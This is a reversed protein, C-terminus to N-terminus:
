SIACGACGEPGNMGITTGTANTTSVRSLDVGVPAMEKQIDQLTSLLEAFTPRMDPNPAWAQTLMKVVKKNRVGTLSPRVGNIAAAQAAEAVARAAAAKDPKAAIAYFNSDTMSLGLALLALNLLAWAIPGWVFFRRFLFLIAFVAVLGVSYVVAGTSGGLAANVSDRILQPVSPM